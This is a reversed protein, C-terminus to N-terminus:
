WTYPKARQPMQDSLVDPGNSCRTRFSMQGTSADPGFPCRARQPMQDTPADPGNPCRARQLTHDTPVDSGNPCRTRRSMQNIVFPQSENLMQSNFPAQNTNDYCRTRLSRQPLSSSPVDPASFRMHYM